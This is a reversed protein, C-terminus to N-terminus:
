GHPVEREGVLRQAQAMVQAWEADNFRTRLVEILHDKFRTRHVQGPGRALAALLQAKELQKVRLATKARHFWHPDLPRREGQRRIDTTAIQLRIAAMEDDLEALRARCGQPTGPLSATASNLSQESM